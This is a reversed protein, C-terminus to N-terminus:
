LLKNLEKLRIYAVLDPFEDLNNIIYPYNENYLKVEAEIESIEYRYMYRKIIYCMNLHEIVKMNIIDM